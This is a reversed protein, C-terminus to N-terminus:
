KKLFSKFSNHKYGTALVIDEVDYSKLHEIVYTLMEKKIKVLPKPTLKTIPYLRKGHRWM